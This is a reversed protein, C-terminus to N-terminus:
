PTQRASRRAYQLGPGLLTLLLLVIGGIVLVEIVTFGLRLKMTAGGMGM